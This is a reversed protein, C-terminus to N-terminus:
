TGEYIIGYGDTHAETWMHGTETVSFTASGSGPVNGDLTADGVTVSSGSCDSCLVTNRQGSMNVFPRYKFPTGSANPVHLVASFRYPKHLQPDSLNWQFLGFMPVPTDLMEGQNLNKPNTTSVLSVGSLNSGVTVIIFSFVDPPVAAYRSDMLTVTITVAQDTGGVPIMLPSVTRTSNYGLTFNVPINSGLGSSGASFVQGPDLTSQSDTVPFASVPQNKWFFMYQSPDYGSQVSVTPNTVSNPSRNGFFAGWNRTGTRVTGAQANTATPPLAAVDFAAEQAVLDSFPNQAFAIQPIASQITVALMGAVVLLVALRMSLINLGWIHRVTRERHKNM